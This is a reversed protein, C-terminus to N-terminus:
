AKGERGMEDAELQHNIFTLLTYAVGRVQKPDNSNRAYTEILANLLPNKDKLYKDVDRLWALYERESRHRVGHPGLVDESIIPLSDLTM